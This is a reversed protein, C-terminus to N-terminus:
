WIQLLLLLNACGILLSHIKKLVYFFGFCFCFFVVVIVFLLFCLLALCFLVYFCSFLFLLLFLFLFLSLLFHTNRLNARAHTETDWQIVTGWHTHAHTGLLAFSGLFCLRVSSAGGFQKRSKWHRRGCRRLLRRLLLRLSLLLQPLFLLLPLLSWCLLSPSLPLSLPSDLALELSLGRICGVNGCAAPVASISRVATWDILSQNKM